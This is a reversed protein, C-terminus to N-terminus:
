IGAFTATNVAHNVAKATEHHDASHNHIDGHFEIHNSPQQKAQMAGADLDKKPQLQKAHSGALNNGSPHAGAIGLAIKGFINKSPDAAPSDNPLLTEMLGELGIGVLQGGYGMARNALDFLPQAAQGAGPAFMNGAASAASEAMGLLGGGLGFGKGESTLQQSPNEMINRDGKAPHGKKGGLEKDVAGLIDSLQAGTSKHSPKGPQAPRQPGNVPKATHASPHSPKTPKAPQKAPTTPLPIVGGGSYWHHAEWFAKANAPTGYRDSIYALLANTEKTPDGSYAGMAGYKDGEHGLFQGLGYAGSSPNRANPNFGSEHQMIWKVDDADSPSLGSLAANIAAMSSGSGTVPGGDDYVRHRHGDPGKVYHYKGHKVGNKETKGYGAARAAKRYDRLFDIEDKRQDEDATEHAKELSDLTQGTAALYKGWPSYKAVGKAFSGYFETGVKFPDSWPNAKRAKADANIKDIAEKGGIGAVAEPTLIGEGGRLGVPEGNPLLGLVSDGGTDPVGMLPQGIVGGRAKGPTGLGPIPIGGVTPPNASNPANPPVSQAPNQGPAKSGADRWDPGLWTPTHDNMWKTVPNNAMSNHQEFDKVPASNGVAKAIEDGIIAGLAIPNFAAAVNAAAGKLAAGLGSGEMEAAAATAGAEIRTASATGAADLKTALGTGAAAEEASLTTAGAQIDTGAAAIQTPLRDSMFQGVKRAGGTLVSVAPALDSFTNVIKAAGWTAALTGLVGILAEEAVKHRDLWDAATNLDGALKTAEPLIKQGITGAFEELEGELIKMKAPLSQQWQQFASKFGQANGETQYQALMNKLEPLAQILPLMNRQVDGTGAITGIVQAQTLEPMQGGQVFASPGNATKQFKLWNKVTGTITPDTIGAEGFAKQISKNTATANQFSPTQLLQLAAKGQDGMSNLQDIDMQQLEKLQGADNFKWGMNYLGTKPDFRSQIANNIKDLVPIIGQDRMTTSLEGPQIGLQELAKAKPGKPNGMQSITQATNLMGREPPMGAQSLISAVADIQASAENPGVNPMFSGAIPEINALSKFYEAPNVDKLNGLTVVLKGAIDNMDKLFKAPDNQENNVKFDNMTTTIGSVATDIDTNAMQAVKAAAELVAVANQGRYGAQEVANAGSALEEPKIGTQGAIRYTADTIMKVNSASDQHRTLIDNMRGSTHAAIDLGGLMTGGVVVAAGGGVINASRPIPVIPKREATNARSSGGAVVAADAERSAKLARNTEAIAAQVRKESAIMEDAGKNFAAVREQVAADLQAMSRTVDRFAIDANRSLDALGLDFGKTLDEGSKKGAMGFKAKTEALVKDVEAMHLKPLIDIFVGGAM